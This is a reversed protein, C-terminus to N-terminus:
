GCVGTNALCDTAQNAEQLILQLDVKWKWKMMKKCEEVLNNHLNRVTEINNVREYVQHSDIEAVSHKIGMIQSM